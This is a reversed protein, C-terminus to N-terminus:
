PMLLFWNKTTPNRTFTLPKCAKDGKEFSEWYDFNVTSIQVTEIGKKQM